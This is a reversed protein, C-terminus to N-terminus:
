GQLFPEGILYNIQLCFPLGIKTYAKEITHDPNVTKADGEKRKGLGIGTILSLNLNGYNQQIGALLLFHIIVIRVSSIM